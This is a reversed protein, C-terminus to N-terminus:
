QLVRASFLSLHVPDADFFCSARVAGDPVLILTPSGLVKEDRAM